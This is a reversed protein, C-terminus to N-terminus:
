TNSNEESQESVKQISTLIEAQKEKKQQKSLKKQRKLKEQHKKYEERKQQKRKIKDKAEKGIESKLNPYRSCIDEILKKDIVPDLNKLCKKARSRDGKPIPPHINFKLEKELYKEKKKHPEKPAIIIFAEPELTVNKFGGFSVMDSRPNDSYYTRTHTMCNTCFGGKIVSKEM